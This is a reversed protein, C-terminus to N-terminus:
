GHNPAYRWFPGHTVVLAQAVADCGAAVPLTASWVTATGSFAATAIAISWQDVVEPGTGIVGPFVPEHLANLPPPAVPHAPTARVHQVAPPGEGKAWGTLVLQTAPAAGCTVHLTGFGPVPLLAARAGHAVRRARQLVRVRGEGPGPLPAGADVPLRDQLLSGRPQPASSSPTTSTASTPQSAASSNGGSGSCAAALVALGAIALAATVRDTRMAQLVRRGTDRM